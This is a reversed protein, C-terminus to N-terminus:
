SIALEDINILIVGAKELEEEYTEIIQPADKDYNSHGGKVLYVKYGLELGGLSTARICGQTVMGTIILNELGRSEMISQLTTNQFANGHKKKIFLDGAIPRLAPHLMWGDTGEKLISQNSHQVYIVTLNYLHALEVLGNIKELMQWDEYVPTPRTFLARQVDIVLLATKRAPLVTFQAM